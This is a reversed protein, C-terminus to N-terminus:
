STCCTLYYLSNDNFFSFLIVSTPFESGSAIFTSLWFLLKILCCKSKHAELGLSPIKVHTAQFYSSTNVNCYHTWIECIKEWRQLVSKPMSDQFPKYAWCISFLFILLIPRIKNSFVTSTYFYILVILGPLKLSLFLIQIDENVKPSRRINIAKFVKLTVMNCPLHFFM